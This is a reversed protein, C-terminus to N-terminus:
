LLATTGRNDAPLPGKQLLRPSSWRSGTNAMGFADSDIPLSAMKFNLHCNDIGVWNIFPFEQLANRLLGWSGSRMTAYKELHSVYGALGFLCSM